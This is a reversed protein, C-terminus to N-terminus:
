IRDFHKVNSFVIKTAGDGGTDLAPDSDPKITSEKLVIGKRPSQGTAYTTTPPTKRIEKNRELDVAVQHDTGAAAVTKETLTIYL